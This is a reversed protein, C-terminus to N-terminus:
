WSQANPRLIAKTTTALNRPEPKPMQPREMRGWGPADLVTGGEMVIRGRVITAVPLGVTEMGEYPTFRSRTSHLEAGRIVGEKAPDVVAIDADAGPQIVGKRPYLGFAKAPAACAMRVYQEMTMRGQHVLTLMLRMSTEVGPFGCANDWFSAHQKEAMAHPAHDTGLMDITGDLLANLIPERQAGERIPPNLRAIRAKDGVLDEASLLFYQPGTEVTMPVGRAKADRIIPLSRMCSEHVIHIRAGTWESLTISRNLSELAVIDARAALHAFADDRGAAKMRNERWFLMPSNEAHISCRLGLEALIEFGELVAGDNPAPLNGTTNGYFLKTGIIGAEALQPLIDLTREDLLGYLGYNVHAQRAAAEQKIALADMSWVPPDTNPMDFITTVGGAAAARTGTTWDEKQTMGPERIHTHVDIAGPIVFKGAAAMTRRARPAFDRHGVFVILGDKVAVDAAFRGTENIVTGGTILLDAYLETM